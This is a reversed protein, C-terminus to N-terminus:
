NRNHESPLWTSSHFWHVYQLLQCTLFVQGLSRKSSYQKQHYAAVKFCSDIQQFSLFVFFFNFTKSTHWYCFTWKSERRPSHIVQGFFTQYIIDFEESLISHHVAFCCTEKVRPLRIQFQEKYYQCVTSSLIDVARFRWQRFFRANRVPM